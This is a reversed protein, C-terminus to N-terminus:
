RTFKPIIALSNLFTRACSEWTFTRGLEACQRRDITYCHEIARKLDTDLKGSGNTIVDKPGTVPYAAVPTGSAMAELMVVGFTDTKSPFVFVDASAYYTALDTGRKAGVFIADPYRSKMDKLQPGDGVVLKTGPIQLALFDDLGKEISIRGVSLHIPRPLGLDTARSPSFLDSDVGRSWVVLNKFGREHLETAMSGTTVLIAKASGHILRLYGYTVWLPIPWRKRVYEPFKTHYSTSYPIQKLACYLRAAAGIPGETAIHISDPDIENILRPLHWFANYALRIESYSPCPITAFLSPEIMIVEHGLNELETKTHELTTVVGNIQPRSADTCIVIKM